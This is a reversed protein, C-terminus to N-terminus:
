PKRQRLLELAQDPMFLFVPGLLEPPGEYSSLVQRVAAIAENYRDLEARGARQRTAIDDAADALLLQVSEKKSRAVGVQHGNRTLMWGNGRREM